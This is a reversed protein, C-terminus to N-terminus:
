KVTCVSADDADIIQGDIKSEDTSNLWSIPIINRWALVLASEVIEENVCVLVVNTLRLWGSGGPVPAFIRPAARMFM